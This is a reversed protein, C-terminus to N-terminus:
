ASASRRQHSFRVLPPVVRNFLIEAAAVGAVAIPLRGVDLFAYVVIAFALLGGALWQNWRPTWHDKAFARAAKLVGVTMASGAVVHWRVDSSAGYVSVLLVSSFAFVIQQIIPVLVRNMHRILRPSLRWNAFAVGSLAWEVAVSVTHADLGIDIEGRARKEARDLIFGLQIDEPAVHSGTSRQSLRKKEEAIQKLLWTRDMDDSTPMGGGGIEVSIGGPGRFVVPPGAEPSLPVLSLGIHNTLSSWADIAIVIPVRNSNLLYEWAQQTDRNWPRTNIVDLILRNLAPSSSYRHLNHMVQNLLDKVFKDVNQNSETADPLWEANRIIPILVELVSEVFPTQDEDYKLAALGLWTDTLDGPNPWSRAIELISQRANVATHREHEYPSQISRVATALLDDLAEVPIALNGRDESRALSGLHDLTKLLATKVGMRNKGLIEEYAAELREDWPFQFLIDAAANVIAPPDTDYRDSVIGIHELSVIWALLDAIAAVQVDQSLDIGELADNQALYRLKTIIVDNLSQRRVDWGLGEEEPTLERGYEARINALHQWHEPLSPLPFMFSSWVFATQPAAFRNPMFFHLLRGTDSEPNSWHSWELFLWGSPLAAAAIPLLAWIRNAGDSFMLIGTTLVGLLVVSGMLKAMPAGVIRAVRLDRPAERALPIFTPGEPWAETAEVGLRAAMALHGEAEEWRIARQRLWSAAKTAWSLSPLLARSSLATTSFVAPPTPVSRRKNTLSAM